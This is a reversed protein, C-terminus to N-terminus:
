AKINNPVMKKKIRMKINILFVANQSFFCQEVM